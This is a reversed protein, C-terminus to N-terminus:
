HSFEEISSQSAISITLTLRRDDDDEQHDDALEAMRLQKAQPLALLGQLNAKTDELNGLMYM